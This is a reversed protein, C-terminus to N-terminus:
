TGREEPMTSIHNRPSKSGVPVEAPPWLRSRRAWLFVGVALLAASYALSHIVATSAAAVDLLGNARRLIESSGWMPMWNQADGSMQIGMVGIIVLVGEMERPVVAATIVGVAIAGLTSLALAGTLM